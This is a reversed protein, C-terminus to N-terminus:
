GAAHALEELRNYVLALRAEHEGVQIMKTYITAISSMAHVASCKEAVTGAMELAIEADRIAGWAKAMLAQMDGPKHLRQKALRAVHPSKNM